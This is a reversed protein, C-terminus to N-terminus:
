DLYAWEVVMGWPIFGRAKISKGLEDDDPWQDGAMVMGHENRTVLWGVSRTRVAKTDLIDKVEHDSMDGHADDWVVVVARLGKRAINRKPAKGPKSSGSM